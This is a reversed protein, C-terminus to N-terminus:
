EILTFLERSILLIITATFKLKSMWEKKDQQISVRGIWSNSSLNQNTSFFMPCLNPNNEGNKVINASNQDLVKLVM